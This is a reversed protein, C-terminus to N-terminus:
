REYRIEHAYSYTTISSSIMDAFRRRFTYMLFLHILYHEGQQTGSQFTDVEVWWGHWYAVPAEEISM